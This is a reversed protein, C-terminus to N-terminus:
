RRVLAPRRQGSVFVDRRDRWRLSAAREFDGAANQANQQEDGCETYQERIGVLQAVGGIGDCVGWPPEDGRRNHERHEVPEGDGAREHHEDRAVDRTVALVDGDGLHGGEDTGRPQEVVEGHAGAKDAADRIVLFDVLDADFVRGAHEDLRAHEGADGDDRQERDGQEHEVDM